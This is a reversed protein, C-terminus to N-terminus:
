GSTGPHILSPKIALEQLISSIFRLAVTALLVPNSSFWILCSRALNSEIQRIFKPLFNSPDHGSRVM